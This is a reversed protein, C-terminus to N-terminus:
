EEVVDPDDNDGTGGGFPGYLNEMARKAEEKKQTKMEELATVPDEIFWLLEYLHSDPVLGALMSVIEAMERFNQPLNRSLTVRVWDPDYLPVSSEVDGKLVAHIDEVGAAALREANLLDTLVTIFQDVADIFYIEKKGAKIDLEKYKVKIETATVGSIDSLKPTFTTEFLTDKLRELHNEIAQDDQQQAIFSADSTNKDGKLVLARAKRMKIVENEDTDVGVLLLYQDLLYEVLNSKDSMKAAYDELISFVGNGLDSTGNKKLRTEYSAATGNVFISVPIRGAKHEIPNGLGDADLEMDDLIFGEGTEDSLYYTIYREDYVETRVRDVSHGTEDEVEVTYRRIVMILRGKVDYVPIVEQCPFEEYDISGREDVWGIIASYGAISGQTLMERLVRRGQKTKLLKLIKARYEDVLEKPVAEGKPAEVTWVAPNGLLYDVVTDVILQAYNALLKNNVDDGRSKDRKEITEIYGDYLAQFEAVRAEQLWADHKDLIKKIWRGNAGIWEQAQAATVTTYQALTEPIISTVAM